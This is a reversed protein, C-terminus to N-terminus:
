HKWASTASESANFRLEKKAKTTDSYSDNIDAKKPQGFHREFDLRSM